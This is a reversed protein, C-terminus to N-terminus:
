IQLTEGECAAFIRLGLGTNCTQFEREIRDLEGDSRRPDHHFFALMRADARVAVSLAYDYTSHGWHSKQSFEAQTYQADHILLDAGESLELVSDKIELGSKPAQHDPVYVIVREDVEVRYGLTANTHDVLHPTVKPKGPQDLVLENGDLTEILIEGSLDSLVVPFFPSGILTGLNHALSAGAESPGYISLRAGKRDIPAFFPLGQIHDFHLHTLLATGNFSGDLPQSAAFRVLGTGLDLIIPYNKETDLDSYIVVCSTNGGYRLNEPVPTPHSGRVGFFEVRAM